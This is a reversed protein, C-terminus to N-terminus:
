VTAAIRPAIPATTRAYDPNTVTAAGLKVIVVIAIVVAVTIAVVVVVSVIIIGHRAGAIATAIFGAGPIMTVAGRAQKM